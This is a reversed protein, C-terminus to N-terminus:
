KPLFVRVPKAAVYNNYIVPAEAKLRKADLTEKVHSKYTALCAGEASELIESDEMHAKIEFSLEDIDKGLHKADEKLGRLKAHAHSIDDTAVSVKGKTHNPWRLRLDDHTVPDPPIRPVIYSNWFSEEAEMLADIASPVAEYIQRFIEMTTSNLCVLLLAPAGIVACNHVAQCQIYDPVETELLEWNRPAPVKIEIPIREGEWLVFGDPLAHSWPYKENRLFLDQDHDIVDVGLVQSLRQRAVPELLLGRLVDPNTSLDPATGNVMEYFLSLQSKYQSLGVAAAANSGGITRRHEALWEPSKVIANM